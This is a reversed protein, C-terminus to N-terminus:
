KSSARGIYKDIDSAFSSNPFENKIKKYFELAQSIEGNTEFAIAAKKLLFPKSAENNSFNVAKKYNAFAADTQNIEMQADALVGYALAGLIKDKKKYDQLYSIADDYNKLHFYSLGAYYTALNAAKTGSHYDIVDLLGSNLALEFSDQEFYFQADFLDAHAAAEAEPQLVTMYYYTGGIILILAILGGFVINKYKEYFNQLKEVATLKIDTAGVGSIEEFEIQTDKKSM